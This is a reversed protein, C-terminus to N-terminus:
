YNSIILILYSNGKKESAATTYEMEPWIKRKRVQLWENLKGLISTWPWKVERWSEWRNGLQNESHFGKMLLHSLRLLLNSYCIHLNATFSQECSRFQISRTELRLLIIAYLHNVDKASYTLVSYYTCTCLFKLINQKARGLKANTRETTQEVATSGDIDQDSAYSPLFRKTTVPWSKQISTVYACYLRCVYDKSRRFNTWIICRTRHKVDSNGVLWCLLYCHVFLCVANPEQEPRRELLLLDFLLTFHWKDKWHQRALKPTKKWRKRIDNLFGFM